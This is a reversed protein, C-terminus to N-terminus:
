VRPILRLHPVPLILNEELFPNFFILVQGDLHLLEVTLLDLAMDVFHDAVKLVLDIDDGILHM